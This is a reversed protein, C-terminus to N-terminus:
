ENNNTKGLGGNKLRTIEESMENIQNLQQQLIEIQKRRMTELEGIIKYFEELTIGLQEM